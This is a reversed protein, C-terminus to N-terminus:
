KVLSTDINKIEECSRQLNSVLNNMKVFVAIENLLDRTDMECVGTENAAEMVDTGSSVMEIFRAVNEKM